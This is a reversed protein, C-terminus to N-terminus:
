IADAVPIQLRIPGAAVLPKPRSDGTKSNRGPNRGTDPGAAPFDTPIM